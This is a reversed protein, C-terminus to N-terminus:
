PTSAAPGGPAGSVTGPLQWEDVRLRVTLEGHRLELLQPLADAAASEDIRQRHIVVDNLGYTMWAEAPDGDRGARGTEQYYAEVNSPLDAHCVFRVDPKDIGMGFANTAVIVRARESMFDEQVSRRHDDDLGAHYAVAAIRHKRLVGAVREVTKRTSAYVM